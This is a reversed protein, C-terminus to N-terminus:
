RKGPAAYDWDHAAAAEALKRGHSDLMVMKGLRGPM